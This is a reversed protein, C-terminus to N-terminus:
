DIQESRQKKLTTKRQPKGVMQTKNKIGGEEGMVFTSSDEKPPAGYTQGLCDQEVQQFTKEEEDGNDYNAGFKSQTM